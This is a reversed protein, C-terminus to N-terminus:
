IVARNISTQSFTFPGVPRSRGPPGRPAVLSLRALAQMKFNLGARVIHGENKFNVIYGAGAGGSGPIVNIAASTDGLNYYLYEARLTVNQWFAQEIGGGVAYGMETSKQGGTFQL